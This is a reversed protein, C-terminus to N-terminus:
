RCDLVHNVKEGLPQLHRAYEDQEEQMKRIEFQVDDVFSLRSLRTEESVQGRLAATAQAEEIMNVPLNRKFGVKLYDDLAVGNRKSWASFLVKYQYRLTSTMKRELTICKNELSMIKYKMAVGTVNGAFQEDGFNVSKAFRLINEELRDLHHEILADNIGKTLYDVDDKEDFLEIIGSKKMRELTDEDAGMDKLILYALRYQEIENSADSM